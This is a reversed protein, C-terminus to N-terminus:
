EAISLPAVLTSAAREVRQTVALSDTWQCVACPQAPEGTGGVLRSSTTMARALSGESVLPQLWQRSQGTVMQFGALHTGSRSGPRPCPKSWLSIDIQGFFSKGVTKAKVSHAPATIMRPYAPTPASHSRRLCRSADMAPGVDVIRRERHCGACLPRSPRLARLTHVHVEIADALAHRSALIHALVRRVM